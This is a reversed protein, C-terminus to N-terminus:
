HVYLGIAAEDNGVNKKQQRFVQLSCNLFFVKQGISSALEM